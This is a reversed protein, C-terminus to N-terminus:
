EDDGGPVCGVHVWEGHYKVVKSPPYTPGLEPNGNGQTIRNGCRPCIGEWSAGVGRSM